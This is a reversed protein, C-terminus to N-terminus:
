LPVQSSFRWSVTLSLLKQLYGPSLIQLIFLFLCHKLGGCNELVKREFQTFFKKFFDFGFQFTLVFNSERNDEPHM